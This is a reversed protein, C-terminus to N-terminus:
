AAVKRCEGIAETREIFAEWDSSTHSSRKAAFFYRTCGEAQVVLTQRAPRSMGRPGPVSLEVEYSGPVLPEPRGAHVARGDIRMVTAPMTDQTPSRPATVFLAYPQDYRGALVPMALVAAVACALPLICRNM